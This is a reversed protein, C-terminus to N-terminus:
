PLTFIVKLLAQFVIFVFYVTLSNAMVYNKLGLLLMAM